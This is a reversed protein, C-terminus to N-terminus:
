FRSPEPKKPYKDVIPIEPSVISGAKIINAKEFTKNVVKEVKKAINL